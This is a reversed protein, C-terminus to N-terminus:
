LNHVELGRRLRSGPPGPVLEPTGMGNSREPKPTGVPMDPDSPCWVGGVAELNYFLFYKQRVFRLM